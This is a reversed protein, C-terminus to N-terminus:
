DNAYRSLDGKWVYGCETCVPDDNWITHLNCSPKTGGASPNRRFAREWGEERKRSWGQGKLNGQADPM